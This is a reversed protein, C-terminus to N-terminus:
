IYEMSPYMLITAKENGACFDEPTLLENWYFEWKGDLRVAHNTIQGETLDLKGQIAKGQNASKRSSCGSVLSLLIIFLFFATAFLTRHKM